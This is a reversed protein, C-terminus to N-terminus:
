FLIKGIGFQFFLLYLLAFVIAIYVLWKGKIFFRTKFNFNLLGYTAMGSCFLVTFLLMLSDSRIGHAILTDRGQLNQFFRNNLLNFLFSPIVILSGLISLMRMSDNTQNTKFLNVYNYLEKIEKELEKTQKEIKLSDQLMDYLEICQEQASVERYYIKNIFQVYSRYFNDLKEFHKKINQKDIDSMVTIEASFKLISARQILALKVMKVYMTRFHTFTVNKPFFGTGSIAVFSFRTIGFLTGEKQWRPYTHEKLLIEQMEYNQCSSGKPDIYLFEHWKDSKKFMQYHTDEAIHKSKEDEFLWCMTFMRDDIVPEIILESSFDLLLNDIFKAQKWYDNVTYKSFDELYRNEDGNLGTIKIFDALESLAKTDKVGNEKGIFAPFIRRGFHNIKKIDEFDAYQTNRIYFTLIGTGTSYLDLTIEDLDLSYPHNKYIGIIYKLSKKHVEDREFHQFEISKENSYLAPHIFKYFYNRENFEEVAKESKVNLDTKKWGIVKAKNFNSLAYRESFPKENYNKTEWSFPFMFIHYSHTEM